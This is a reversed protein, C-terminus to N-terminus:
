ANKIYKKEIVFAGFPIVSGLIVIFLDKLSWNLKGKIFIALYIYGIFLLGHTMGIPYVLSEKLSPNIPKIILMNALLLLYSFGETIATIKFIKIM